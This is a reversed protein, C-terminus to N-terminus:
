AAMQKVYFYTERDLRYKAGASAAKLIEKANDETVVDMDGGKLKAILEATAPSVNDVKKKTAKKRTVMGARALVTFEEKTFRCDNGRSAAIDLANKYGQKTFVDGTKVAEIAEAIDMVALLDTLYEKVKTFQGFESSFRNAIAEKKFDNLEKILVSNAGKADKLAALAEEKSVPVDFKVEKVNIFPMNYAYETGKKVVDRLADYVRVREADKRNKNAKVLMDIKSKAEAMWADVNANAEKLRKTTRFSREEMAKVLNKTYAKNMKRIKNAMNETGVYEIDHHYTDAANLGEEFYSTRFTNNFQRGTAIEETFLRLATELNGWKEVPASSSVFDVATDSNEAELSVNSSDAGRWYLSVNEGSAERCAKIFQYFEVCQEEWEAYTTKKPNLGLQEAMVDKEMPLQDDLMGHERLWQDAEQMQMRVEKSGTNLEIRDKNFKYALNRCRKALSGNHRYYAEAHKSKIEKKIAYVDDASTAEKLYSNFLYWDKANQKAQEKSINTKKTFSLEEQVGDNYLEREFKKAERSRRELASEKRQTSMTEEKTKMHPKCLACFEDNTNLNTNCENCVYNTKM